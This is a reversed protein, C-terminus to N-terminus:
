QEYLFAVSNEVHSCFEHIDNQRLLILIQGYSQYIFLLCSFHRVANYIPNGSFFLPLM